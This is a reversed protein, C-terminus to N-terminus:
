SLPQPCQEGIPGRCPPMAASAVIGVYYSLPWAHCAQEAEPRSRWMSQRVMSLSRSLTSPRSAQLRAQSARSRQRRVRARRMRAGLLGSRM